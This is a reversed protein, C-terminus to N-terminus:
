KYGYVKITGTMAQAYILTFGTYSTTVNLKGGYDRRYTGDFNHGYWHTTKTLFPNSINAFFTGDNAGIGSIQGSTAGTAQEGSITTTTNQQYQGCWNYNATSNDAGSVRFRIKLALGTSASTLTSIILYNDYTASFCNDISVSTVASATTTNLLVLGTTSIPSYTSSVQATTSYATLDTQASALEQWATGDYVRAKKAL